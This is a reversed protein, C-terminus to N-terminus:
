TQIEGNQRPNKLDETVTGNSIIQLLKKINKEQSLNQEIKHASPFIYSFRQRYYVFFSIKLYFSTFNLPRHSENRAYAM